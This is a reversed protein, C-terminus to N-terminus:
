QKWQYLDGVKQQELQEKTFVEFYLVLMLVFFLIRAFITHLMHYYQVGLWKVMVVIFLIRIVNCFCIYLNGLVVSKMRNWMSAFPFFIILCTYVLIEIIGSCEYNLIMAIVGNKTNIMLTLEKFFVTYLGTLKGLNMLLYAVGKTLLMELPNLYFIMIITFLGLSATIFHFFYMKLAKLMWILNLWIVCFIIFLLINNM